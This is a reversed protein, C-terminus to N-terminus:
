RCSARRIEAVQRNYIALRNRLDAPSNFRHRGSLSAQLVDELVTLARNQSSCAADHVHLVTGATLAAAFLGCAIITVTMRRM